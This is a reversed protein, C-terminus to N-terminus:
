TDIDKVNDILLLKIIENTYNENVFYHYYPQVTIVSILNISSYM